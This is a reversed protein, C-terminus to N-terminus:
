LCLLNRKQSSPRETVAVTADIPGVPSVASYDLWVPDHRQSSYHTTTPPLLRRLRALKAGFTENEVISANTRGDCLFIRALNPIRCITISLNLGLTIRM